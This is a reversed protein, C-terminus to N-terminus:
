FVTEDIWKNIADLVILPVENQRTEKGLDVIPVRGYPGDPDGHRAAVSRSSQKLAHDDSATSFVMMPVANPEVLLRKSRFRDLEDKKHLCIRELLAFLDDKGDKDNGDEDDDMILVPDILVLGKLSFSELYYQACLSALPGRAVLIADSLTPLPSTKLAQLGASPSPPQQENNTRQISAFSMGYEPPVTSRFTDIWSTRGHAQLTETSHVGDDIDEQFVLPVDDEMLIITYPKETVKSDLPTEVITSFLLPSSSSSENESDSCSTNNSGDTAFGRFFCHKAAPAQRSWQSSVRQSLPFSVEGINLVRHLDSYSRRSCRGWRTTRQLAQLSKIQATGLRGLTSSIVSPGCAM